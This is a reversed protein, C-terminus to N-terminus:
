VTMHNAKGKINATMM